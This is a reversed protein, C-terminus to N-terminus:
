RPGPPASGGADARAEVPARPGECWALEFRERQEGFVDVTVSELPTVREFCPALEHLSSRQRTGLKEVFLAPGATRGDDMWYRYQNRHRADLPYGRLEGRTMWELRSVMHYNNSTLVFDGRARREAAIRRALEDWGSTELVARQAPEWGARALPGMTVAPLVGFLLVFVAGTWLARRLGPSPSPDDLGALALPTAAVFVTAVWQAHIPALVAVAVFALLPLVSALALFLRRDDPAARHARLTAVSRRLWVFALGPTLLLFPLTALEALHRLADSPEIDGRLPTALTDGSHGANFLANPSAVLLAVLLALWPAPRRLWARGRPTAALFAAFVIPLQGANYKSLLALGTCAGALLWRGLRDHAYADWFAFLAATWFFLLPGDPTAAIGFPAWFLAFCCVGLTALAARPGVLRLAFRWSLLAGASALLVHGMRVGLDGHGFLTTGARIVAAVMPPHDFYGWALQRSWLWYYAEAELLPLAAALAIRLGLSALLLGVIWALVHRPGDGASRPAPGAVPPLASM